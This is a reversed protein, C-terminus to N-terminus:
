GWIVGEQEELIKEPDKPTSSKKPKCYDDFCPDYTCVDDFPNFTCKNSQAHKVYHPCKQRNDGSLKCRWIGTEHSRYEINM